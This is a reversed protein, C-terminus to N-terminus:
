CPIRLAMHLCQEEEQEEAEHKENVVVSALSNNLSYSTETRISRGAYCPSM